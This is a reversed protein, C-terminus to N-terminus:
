KGCISRFRCYSCAKGNTTQIFPTEESFIEDLCGRLGEEFADRYDAFDMVREQKGREVRRYIGADFTPAFLTRVYYIGPQIATRGSLENAYMWAYMFVQMVAKPRDAASKDFLAEVSPFVTM